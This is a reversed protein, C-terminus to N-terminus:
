PARRELHVAEHALVLISEARRDGHASRERIVDYLDRCVSTRLFTLERGPYAVGLADSRVGLFGSEDSCELRVRHGAISSAEAQLRQRTTERTTPSLASWTTARDDVVSVAIVAICGVVGLLLPWRDRLRREPRPPPPVLRVGDEDEVLEGFGLDADEDGPLERRVSTTGRERYAGVALELEIGVLVLLPFVAPVWDRVSSSFLWAVVLAVLM